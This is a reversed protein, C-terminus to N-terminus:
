LLETRQTTDKPIPSASQNKGYDPAYVPTRAMGEKKVVDTAFYVFAGSLLVFITIIVAIKRTKFYDYGDMAYVKSLLISFGSIYIRTFSTAYAAIKNNGGLSGEIRYDISLLGSAVVILWEM